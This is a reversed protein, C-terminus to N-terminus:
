KYTRCTVKEEQCKEYMLMLKDSCLDSISSRTTNTELKRLKEEEFKRDWNTKFKEQFTGEILHIMEQLDINEAINTENSVM